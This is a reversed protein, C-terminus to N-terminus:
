YAFFDIIENKTKYLSWITYYSLLIMQEHTISIVSNFNQFVTNYNPFNELKGGKRIENIISTDLKNLFNRSPYLLYIMLEVKYNGEVNRSINQKVNLNVRCYVPGGNTKCLDFQSELISWDESEFVQSKDDIFDFNCLNSCIGFLAPLGTIVYNHTIDKNNLFLLIKRCKRQLLTTIGTVDSFCGDGIVVNEDNIKYSSNFHEIHSIINSYNKLQITFAASSTSIADSILPFDSENEMLEHTGYGYQTFQFPINGYKNTISSNCIWIPRNPLSKSISKKHINFPVLINQKVIHRWIKRYLIGSRLADNFNSILNFNTCVKGIFDNNNNIESLLDMTLDKIKINYIGFDVDAYTYICSFWAGGSVGSLHSIESLLNLQKLYYFYGILAAFSRMGGSSLGVAVKNTFM